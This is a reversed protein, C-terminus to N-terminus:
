GDEAMTAEFEFRNVRSWRRSGALALFGDVWEVQARVPWQRRGSPCACQVYQMGEISLPSEVPTWYGFLRPIQFDSDHGGQPQHDRLIGEPGNSENRRRV